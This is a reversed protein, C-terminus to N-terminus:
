SKQWKRLTADNSKRSIACSQLKPCHRVVVLAPVELFLKTASIPDSIIKEIRIDYLKWEFKSTKEYFLLEYHRCEGNVIKFMMTINFFSNHSVVTSFSGAQFNTIKLLFTSIFMIFIYVYNFCSELIELPHTLASLLKPLRLSKTIWTASM